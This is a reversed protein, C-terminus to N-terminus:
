PQVSKMISVALSAVSLVLAIVSLVLSLLYRTYEQNLGALVSALYPFQVAHRKNGAQLVFLSVIVGDDQKYRYKQDLHYYLRGFLLEPDCELKQPAERVDIALHPDNAGHGATDRPGPIPGRVHRLHVSACVSRSSTKEHRRVDLQAASVSRRSEFSSNSKMEKRSRYSRLGRHRHHYSPLRSPHATQGPVLTYTESFRQKSLQAALLACRLLKRPRNPKARCSALLKFLALQRQFLGAQNISASYFRSGLSCAGIGITLRRELIGM